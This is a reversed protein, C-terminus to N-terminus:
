SSSYNSYIVKALNELKFIATCYQGKWPYTIEGSENFAAQVAVCEDYSGLWKFNGGLIGTEPKGM